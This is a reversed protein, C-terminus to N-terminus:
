QINKRKKLWNTLRAKDLQTNNNNGLLNKYQKAEILWTEKHLYSNPNVGFEFLTLLIFYFLIFNEEM